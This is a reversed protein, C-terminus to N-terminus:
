EKKGGEESEKAADREAKKEEAAVKVVTVDAEPKTELAALEEESIPKQALIIIEKAGNLFEVGEPPAIDGVTVHDNFEKLSSLDVEIEHVLHQPLCRVAIEDINRVLIAGLAKVAPAEGIFKLAINAELKEKMNVQRLDAHIIVSRLPDYQVDHVLVKVPEDGDVALDILSSEGAARLMKEFARADLSLDRSAIGRGYVVAPIAGASRLKKVQKGKIKRTKAEFKIAEM